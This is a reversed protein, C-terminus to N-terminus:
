VRVHPRPSNTKASVKRVATIRDKELQSAGVGGRKEKKVEM